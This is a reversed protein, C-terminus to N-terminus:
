AGCPPHITVKRGRRRLIVEDVQAKETEETGGSEDFEEPLTVGDANEEPGEHLGELHALAAAGAAPGLWLLDKVRPSILFGSQFHNFCSGPSVDTGLTQLAEDCVRAALPVHHSSESSLRPM